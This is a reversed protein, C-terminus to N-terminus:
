KKAEGNDTAEMEAMHIHQDLTAEVAISCGSPYSDVIARAERLGELKGRLYGLKDDRMDWPEFKEKFESLPRVWIPKANLDNLTRYVVVPETTPEWFALNIVQYVKRSKIHRYHFGVMVNEISM